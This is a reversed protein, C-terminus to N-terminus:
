PLEVGFREAAKRQSESEPLGKYKVLLNAYQNIGWAVEHNIRLIEALTNTIKYALILPEIISKMEQEVEESIQGRKFHIRECLEELVRRGKKNSLSLAALSTSGYVPRAITIEVILDLDIAVIFESSIDRNDFAVEIGRSKIEQEVERLSMDTVGEMALLSLDKYSFTFVDDEVKYDDM